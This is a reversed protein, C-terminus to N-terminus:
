DRRSNMFLVIILYITLVAIGGLAFYHGVNIRSGSEQFWDVLNVADIAASVVVLFGFVTLGRNLAKEKKDILEQNKKNKEEEILALKGKEVERLADLGITLSKIDEEIALIRKGYKYVGNQHQVNSVSDYVSKVLFLNIRSLLEELFEVYKRNGELDDTEAPLKSLLISYYSCSYSQYLLLIYIFFYDRIFKEKFNHAFFKESDSDSSVIYSMGSKSAYFCTNGFPKYTESTLGAPPNYKKDYGNAVYFALQERLTEHAEKDDNVLLYQFLLAKDPIMRKSMTSDGNKECEGWFRIGFKDIKLLESIWEGMQFIEFSDRGTRRRLSESHTRALEKFDRQFEMYTQTDLSNCFEIEYWLFGIGNKFLLIGLDRCKIGIFLEEDSLKYDLDLLKGNSVLLLSAGLNSKHNEYDEPYEKLLELLYKYIDLEPQVDRESRSNTWFGKQVWVSDKPLRLKEYEINQKNKLYDIISTYGNKHDEYYFPLIYRSVYKKITNM